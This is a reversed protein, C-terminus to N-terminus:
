SYDRITVLIAYHWSLYTPRIWLDRNQVELVRGSPRVEFDRPAIMPNDVNEPYSKRATERLM